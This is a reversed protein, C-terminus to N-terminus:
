DSSPLRKAEHLVLLRGDFSLSGQGAKTCLVELGQGIDTYRKGLGSGGSHTEALTAGAPGEAGSPVMPVGGCALSGEQKPPRVVVVETHCVVSKWRSGAKLNM